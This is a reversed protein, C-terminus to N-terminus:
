KLCMNQFQGGAELACCVGVSLWVEVVKSRELVGGDLGCDGGLYKM